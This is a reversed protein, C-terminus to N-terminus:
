WLGMITNVAAKLVPKADSAERPTRVGEAENECGDFTCSTVKLKNPFDFINFDFSPSACHQGAFMQLQISVM